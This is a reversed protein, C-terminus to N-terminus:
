KIIDMLERVSPDNCIHPNEQQLECLSNRLDSIAAKSKKKYLAMELRVWYYVMYFAM